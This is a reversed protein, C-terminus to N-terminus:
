KGAPIFEIFDIEAVTNSKTYQSNGNISVAFETPIKGCYKKFDEAVNRTETIWEGAKSEQNRMVIYNVTLIGAYKTKGVYDKPTLGEWRYALSTQSFAGDKMALYIAIPQDDKNKLRGDAGQPYSMVRWRWRMVPTKNLDVNKVAIAICGTSRDCKVTLVSNKATCQTVPVRWKKGEISWGVPLGNSQVKDFSECWSSNASVKDDAAFSSLMILGVSLTFYFKCSKVPTGGNNKVKSSNM